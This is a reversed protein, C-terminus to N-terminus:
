AERCAADFLRTRVPRSRSTWVILEACRGQNPADAYDITFGGVFVSREARCAALTVAHGRRNPGSAWELRM